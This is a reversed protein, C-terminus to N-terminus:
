ALGQALVLLLGPFLKEVMRKRSLHLSAVRDVGDQGYKLSLGFCKLLRPSAILPQHLPDTWEHMDEECKRRCQALTNSQYTEPISHMAVQLMRVTNYLREGRCFYDKNSNPDEKSDTDEDGSNM